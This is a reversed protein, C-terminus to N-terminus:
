SPDGPDFRNRLGDGLLIFGASTFSIAIGPMVACWWEYMITNRGEYILAGWEAQPPQAGLGIFSLSGATLLAASLAGSMLTIALPALNPLIHRLLRYSFGGGLLQAAKVYDQAALALAESRFVRTYFPIGLLGLIIALNVLSPGIVASLALAIILAPLSLLVDVIRMILNDGWGGVLASAAGAIAGGGVSLLAVVFAVSLSARAGFLIRSLMDRGLNDTGLLHAQSPAELIVAPNAANPDYPALLPAFVACLVVFAIMLSGARLM